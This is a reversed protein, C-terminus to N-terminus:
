HNFNKEREEEREREDGNTCNTPFEERKMKVFGVL